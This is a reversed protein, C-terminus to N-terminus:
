TKPLEVPRWYKGEIFEDSTVFIQHQQEQYFARLSPAAVEKLLALQAALPIESGDKRSFIELRSIGKEYRVLVEFGMFQYAVSRENKYSFSPQLAAPKGYRAEIEQQTEGVRAFANSVCLACLVCLLTTLKM